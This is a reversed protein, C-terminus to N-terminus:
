KFFGVKEKIYKWLSINEMSVINYRLIYDIKDQWEKCLKESKFYFVRTDQKVLSVVVLRTM